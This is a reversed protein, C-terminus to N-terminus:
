ERGELEKIKDRIVAAEEYKEEDVLEQLKKKLDIIEKEKKDKTTVKKDNIKIHRNKGHIKLFLEDLADVFTKYCEPCGFLGTRSYDELRYGCNKCQLSPIEEYEPLNIFMPMFLDSFDSIGLKKACNVCLHLEHSIGNVNEIYKVTAERKGCSQCKM